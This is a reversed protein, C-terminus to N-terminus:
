FELEADCMDLVRQTEARAKDFAERKERCAAMFWETDMDKAPPLHDPLDRWARAAKVEQVLAQNIKYIQSIISM